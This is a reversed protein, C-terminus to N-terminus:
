DVDSAAVAESAVLAAKEAQLRVFTSEAEEAVQALARADGQAFPVLEKLTVEIEEAAQGAQGAGLAKVRWVSNQPNSADERVRSLIKVPWPPRRSSFVWALNDKLIADTAGTQQRSEPWRPPHSSGSSGSSSGAISEGVEPYAKFVHELLQGMEIPEVVQESVFREYEENRDQCRIEDAALVPSESDDDEWKVRAYEHQPRGDWLVTGWRGNWTVKSGVKFDKPVAEQKEVDLFRILFPEQREPAIALIQGPRRPSASDLKVWIAQGLVFNIRDNWRQRALAREMGDKRSDSPIRSAAQRPISSGGVKPRPTTSVRSPKSSTGPLDLPPPVEKLMTEDTMFRELKQLKGKEGACRKRLDAEAYVGGLRLSLGLHLHAEVCYFKGKDTAEPQVTQADDPKDAQVSSSSSGSGVTSENPGAASADAESKKFRAKKKASESATAPPPEAPDSSKGTVRKRPTSTGPSPSSM